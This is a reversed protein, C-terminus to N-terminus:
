RSAPPRSVEEVLLRAVDRVKVNSRRSTTVLQAFAEDASCGGRSMLVGKAQEIVARSALAERLQASLTTLEARDRTEQVVALVAAVLLDAVRRDRPGFADVDRGYVNLVGLSHRETRLPLGLVSAVGVDAALEALRPWRADERLDDTEQARGTRYAQLCPGDGAQLQAGDVAQAFANDTAQEQPQEPPGLTISVGDCAPMAQEVLLAARALLRRTDNDVQLPLRCMEAFAEATRVDDRDAPNAEGRGGVWTVAGDEPDSAAVLDVTTSRGDADPLRLTVRQTAGRGRVREVTGAVLRRDDEAVLETLPRELVEDRRRGVLSRAAGNLDVLVGDPDTVLVPVPLGNLLARRWGGPSDREALLEDIRSQQARLEQEAVRLEEHAVDIEDLVGGLDATDSGEGTLGQVRRRQEEVGALLEAATSSGSREGPESSRATVM